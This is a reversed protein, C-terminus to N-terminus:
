CYVTESLIILKAHAGESVICAQEFTDNRANSVLLRVHINPLFPGM